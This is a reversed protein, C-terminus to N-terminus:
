SPLNEQMHYFKQFWTFTIYNMPYVSIEILYSPIDTIGYPMLLLLSLNVM